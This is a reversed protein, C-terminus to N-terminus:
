KRKTNHNQLNQATITMDFAVNHGVIRRNRYFGSVGCVGSCTLETKRCSFYRFVTVKKRIEWRAPVGGNKLFREFTGACNRSRRDDAAMQVIDDFVSTETSEVDFVVM